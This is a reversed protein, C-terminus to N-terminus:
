VRLDTNIMCYDLDTVSGNTGLYNSLSNYANVLDPVSANRFCALQSQSASCNLLRAYQANRDTLESIRFM